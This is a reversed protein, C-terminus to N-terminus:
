TRRSGSNGPKFWKVRLFPFAGMVWLLNFGYPDKAATERKSYPPKFGIRGNRSPRLSAAHRTTIQRRRERQQRRPTFPTSPPLGGLSRGAIGVTPAPDECRSSEGAWRGNGGHAYWPRAFIVYFSAASNPRASAASPMAGVLFAIALSALQYNISIHNEAAFGAYFSAARRM